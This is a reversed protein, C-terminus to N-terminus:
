CIAASSYNNNAGREGLVFVMNEATLVFSFIFSIQIHKNYHFQQM